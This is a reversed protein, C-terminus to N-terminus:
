QTPPQALRQIQDASFCCRYSNVFLTTQLLVLFISGSDLNESRAGYEFQGVDLVYRGRMLM